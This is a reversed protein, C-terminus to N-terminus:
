HNGDTGKARKLLISFNQKGNEDTSTSYGAVEYGQDGLRNLEKQAEAGNKAGGFVIQYEWRQSAQTSQMNVNQLRNSQAATIGSSIVAGIVTGLLLMAVTLLNQRNRMYNIGKKTLFTTLRFLTRGRKVVQQSPNCTPSDDRGGTM